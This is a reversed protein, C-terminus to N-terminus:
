FLFREMRRKGSLVLFCRDWGLGAAGPVRRGGLGWEVPGSGGKIVGETVLVTQGLRANMRM